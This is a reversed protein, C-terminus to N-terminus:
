EDTKREKQFLFQFIILSVFFIRLEYNNIDNSHQISELVAFKILILDRILDSNREHMVKKRIRHLLVVYNM